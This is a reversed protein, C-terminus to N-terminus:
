GTKTTAPRPSGGPPTAGALHAALSLRAPVVIATVASVPAPPGAAPGVTGGPPAKALRKAPREGAAIRKAKRATALEVSRATLRRAYGLRLWPGVLKGARETSSGKFSTRRVFDATHERGALLGGECFLLVDVPRVRLALAIHQRLGAIRLESPAFLWPRALPKAEAVVNGMDATAAALAPGAVFGRPGGGTAASGPTPAGSRGSGNDERPRKSSTGQAVPSLLDVVGYAGVADRQRLLNRWIGSQMAAPRSGPVASLVASLPEPVLHITMGSMTEARRAAAEPDLPRTAAGSSCSAHGEGFGSFEGALAEQAAAEMAAGEEEDIKVIEPFLKRVLGELMPDRVYLMRGSASLVGCVPCEPRPQDISGSARMKRLVCVHCFSHMCEPLTVPDRFLGNCLDCRLRRAIELTDVKVDKDSSVSALLAALDFTGNMDFGGDSGDDSGSGSGDAPADGEPEDHEPEDSRPEADATARLEQPAAQAAGGAAGSSVSAPGARPMM